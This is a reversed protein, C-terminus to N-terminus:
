LFCSFLKNRLLPTRADIFLPFTYITLTIVFRLPSMELATQPHGAPTSPRHLWRAAVRNAISSLCFLSTKVLAAFVAPAEEEEEEEEENKNERRRRGSRM